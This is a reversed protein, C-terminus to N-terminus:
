LYHNASILFVVNAEGNKINSDIVRVYRQRFTIWYCSSRGVSSGVPRYAIVFPENKQLLTKFITLIKEQYMVCFYNHECRRHELKYM